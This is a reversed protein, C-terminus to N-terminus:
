NKTIEKTFRIAYIWQILLMFFLLLLLISIYIPIPLSHHSTFQNMWKVIIFWTTPIALIFGIALFFALRSLVFLMNQFLSAGMLQQTLIKEKNICIFFQILSIFGIIMSFFAFLSMIGIFLLIRDDDKYFKKQHQEFSFYDLPEDKAYQNWTKKIHTITENATNPKHKVIIYRYFKENAALFMMPLDKEKRDKTMFHNIVGKIEFKRDPENKGGVIEITDGILKDMKADELAPKNVYASLSDLKGDKNNIDSQIDINFVKFFDNDVFNLQWLFYPSNPNNKLKISTQFYTEGPIHTAIAIVEIEQNEKLSNKFDTIQSGIAKGRNIVIIDEYNYGTSENKISNLQWFMTVLILILATSIHVQISLFVGRIYYGKNSTTTPNQAQTTNIRIFYFTTIIASFLAIGLTIGLAYEIDFGDRLDSIEVGLQMVKNFVPFFIELIVLGLVLSILSILASEIILQILISRKSAGMLRRTLLEKIRINIRSTSLNIFNLSTALLIIIFVFLAIQLYLKKSNPQIENDLKSNLHISLIPQLMFHIVSNSKNLKEQGFAEDVQLHFATPLQSNLISDFITPNIFEKLKIYNYCNFNLWNNKFENLATSDKKQLIMQDITSISAIFDFKLHSTSKVDECVGTIKLETDNELKLYKGMPNVHNFYKQATSQSIVVTNPELLAENPNGSLFPIRFISFFASDSYFFYDENYTIQQYTVKKSFGKIIQTASEINLTDKKIFELLPLPSSAIHISDSGLNGTSVIRYIRNADPYQSDFNHEFRMFMVIMLSLSIGFALGSINILSQGRFTWINRLVRLLHTKIIEM